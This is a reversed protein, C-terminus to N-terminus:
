DDCESVNIPYVNFNLSDKLIAYDEPSLKDKIFQISKSLEAADILAPKEMQLILNQLTHNLIM